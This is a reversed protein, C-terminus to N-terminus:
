HVTATITDYIHALYENDYSELIVQIAELMEDRDMIYKGTIPPAPRIQVATRNTDNDVNLWWLYGKDKIM